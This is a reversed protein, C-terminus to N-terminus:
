NPQAGTLLFDVVQDQANQSFALFSHGAPSESAPYMYTAVTRPADKRNAANILALTNANPITKDGAIYQIFARHVAPDEGAAPNNELLYAYNRADAPDLITNALSIFTDFTPMGPKIGAQSLQLLFATRQKEFSEATLLVGALNGGAVNLVSRRVRPSVATSMTGMIGGLSQGVYDVQAADLKVVAALEDSNLVRTLQAFDVVHHRFNDRTTFLNGLNLFNWGSIAPVGKDRLFDGGECLNDAMCRGQSPSIINACYVDGPVGPPLAAAACSARTEITRAVCRGYSVSQPDNDCRQTAPNACAADDGVPNPTPLVAASGVCSTREGHYVADMAVVAYGAGTLTNAVSVASTRNSTLGHGFVVVPYGTAPAAEKPLFLMFPYRTNRPAGPNLTGFPGTLLWPTTAMVEYIEGINGSPFPPNAGAMSGKVQATIPFVYSPAVSTGYVGGPLTYLQQLVSTTSQTTFNWGLAIKSRPIGLGGDKVPAAVKDFYPKLLKRRPELLKALDSPVSSILSKQNVEDYVPNALRLLAFATSPAVNRGKEDKLDTTMVAGYETAGDLPAKPIIQLQQPVAIVGEAGVSTGCDGTNNVLCTVVDPQTGKDLNNVKFFKVGDALSEPDLKPAPGDSAVRYMTGDLVGTTDGNESVTAGTTSFGDLTNLGTFLDQQLGPTTPVPFDLGSGDAKRILNNPFPVILPLRENAALNITAEPQNLISFTWILVIDERKFGQPALAKNFVDAYGRRLQELQLSKNTQDALRKAPDTETSPILETAPGCDPSTLDECTVLSKDSNIFAWTASGILPQGSTTKLGNEGGVLAVAYRSGKPWAPLGTNLDVPPIINLLDTDENYALTPTVPKTALPTGQYLDIFIVTKPSVSSPDLDKIKTSAIASTPFGNLSNLYDRTFEQEAPSAAPNIPANVRKTQADITVIALDNPSPVVAPSASPDFEALGVNLNPAEQEIEPTCAVAGLAMAGLFLQKKM